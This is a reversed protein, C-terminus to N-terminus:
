GAGAAPPEFETVARRMPEPIASPRGGYGDLGVVTLRAEAILVPAADSLREIRARVEHSSRGLRSTRVFTEVLDDFRASAHYDLALSRVVFLHGPSGLPVIGLHRRYAVVARDLLTPYRGYYVVAGLDTDTLEVRSVLSFGFPPVRDSPGADAVPERVRALRAAGAPERGAVM